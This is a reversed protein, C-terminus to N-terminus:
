LQSFVVGKEDPRMTRIADLLALIKPSHGVNGEVPVTAAPLKEESEAAITALKKNVLDNKQFTQRCLPCTSRNQSTSIVRSICPECFVHTCTRLIMCQSEEMAMLCVACEPVEVSDDNNQSFAGKLKELLNLGEEATLANQKLRGQLEEWLRMASERRHARRYLFRM